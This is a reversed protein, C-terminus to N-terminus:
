SQPRWDIDSLVAIQNPELQEDATPSILDNGVGNMTILVSIIEAVYLRAAIGKSPYYASLEQTIKTRASATDPSLMITPTHPVLVAPIVTANGRVPRFSDIHAQIQAVQASTPVAPGPMAVYIGVTGRGLAGPVVNAYQAGSEKAWREYDAASGGSPPNRIRDIIRERWREVAEIDSGGALGQGDVVVSIVGAVPSVLTLRAGPAINGITGSVTAQVPALDTAGAQITTATTILWQVSGDSVIATGVPLTIDANATILVNGIANTAPNRPVGWIEAHQPLLGDATATTVMMELLQDRMASYVESLALSWVVGLVNELTHPANPDLRVITGDAATFQQALM